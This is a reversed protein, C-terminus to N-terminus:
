QNKITYTQSCLSAHLELGNKFDKAIFSLQIYLLLGEVLQTVLLYESFLKTCHM